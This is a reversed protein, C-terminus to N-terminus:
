YYTLIRTMLKKENDVDICKKLKKRLDHYTKTAKKTVANKLKKAFPTARELTKRAFGEIDRTDKARWKEKVYNVVREVARQGKRPKEAEAAFCLLMICLLIFFKMGMYRDRICM